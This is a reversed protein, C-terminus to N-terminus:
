GLGILGALDEIGQDDVHGRKIDDGERLLRM